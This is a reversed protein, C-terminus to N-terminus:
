PNRHMKDGPNQLRFLSCGAIASPFRDDSGRVEGSTGSGIRSGACPVTAVSPSRSPARQLGVASRPSRDRPIRCARPKRRNHPERKVPPNPWVQLGPPSCRIGRLPPSTSPAVTGVGPIGAVM